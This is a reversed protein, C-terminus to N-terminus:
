CVFQALFLPNKCNYYHRLLLLPHIPLCFPEHDFGIVYRSSVTHAMMAVYGDGTTKWCQLGNSIALMSSFVTIAIYSNM